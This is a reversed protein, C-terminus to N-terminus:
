ASIPSADRDVYLRADPHGHVHSAPWADDCVTSLTRAVLARKGPGFALMRLRKADLITAVGMTFAHSPVHELGQFLRSADERTWPHLAVRRTRSDRPSGPENFAVHGNRGIGLLLLDIGGVERISAEFRACASGDSPFHTNEAPIGAPGFLHETMWARFSLPHNSPLVDYEDLNFTRVHGLDLGDERHMRVLERYLGTPTNGTALGLVADPRCRVLEAIECALEREADRRTDFTRCELSAADRREAEPEFGGRTM